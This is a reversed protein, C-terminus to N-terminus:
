SQVAVIKESEQEEIEAQKDVEARRRTGFRKLRELSLGEKAIYYLGFITAPAFIIPHLIIAVSASKDQAVGLFTLAAATAIHFPGTAGGPTPVVSGLMSLGMVFVAGTFPVLSNDIGFARVVLLHAVSVMMWLVVTYSVTITLSRADHLADLAESIHLLLSMLGRSIKAPMWSLKREIYALAGKRRRAFLSLGYIGAAAAGLLVFGTIRILGFQRMAEADHEGYEFFVLNVAFFVVVAVMDFVREIMVTAFSASPHVREKVSLVAPRVIMEGARGMVFLASFGIMTARFLARFTVRAMPELLTRWRLVRVFYTGVLLVVALGLLMWDAKRVEAWVNPWDLKHAFWYVFVAGVLISLITKLRASV